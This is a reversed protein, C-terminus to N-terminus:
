LFRAQSLSDIALNINTVTHFFHRSLSRIDQLNNTGKETLTRLVDVQVFDDDFIPQFVPQIQCADLASGEEEEEEAAGKLQLIEQWSNKTMNSALDFTISGDMMSHVGLFGAKGNQSVYFQLSKDLWRNAFGYRREVQTNVTMDESDERVSGWFGWEACEKRSVPNADIDLSLILAASQIVQLASEMDPGGQKVLQQRLKGWVPREATTCWGLEPYEKTSSQEACEICHQLGRQLVRPPLPRQDRDVWNMRFFQGRVAVVIHSHLSPDHMEYVDFDEEVTPVRCAHFMYKFPASCLPRRQQQIENGRRAQQQQPLSGSAVLQRYHAAAWILAAGRETATHATPDDRFKYYYVYELISCPLKLYGREYGTYPLWMVNTLETNSSYNCWRQHYKAGQEHFRAAADILNHRERDSQALPLATPLWKEVLEILTPPDPLRPLSKEYLPGGIETELFADDQFHGSRNTIVPSSWKPFPRISTTKKEDSNKCSTSCFAPRACKWNVNKSNWNSIQFDSNWQVCFSPFGAHLPIPSLAKCRGQRALLM